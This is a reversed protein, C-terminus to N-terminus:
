ELSEDNSPQNVKPLLDEAELTVLSGFPKLQEVHDHFWKVVLSRRRTFDRHFPVRSIASFVQALVVLSERTLSHSNCIGQIFRMGDSGEVRFAGLHEASIESEKKHGRDSIRERPRM